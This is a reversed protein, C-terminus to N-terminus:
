IVLSLFLPFHRSLRIEDGSKLWCQTIQTGNVYTHNKSATDFLEARGDSHVVICCHRRSVYIDDVVLDNDNFRGIHNNGYKLRYNQIGIFIQYDSDFRCRKSAVPPGFSLNGLGDEGALSQLGITVSGKAKNVRNRVLRFQELRDLEDHLHISYFKNSMFCGRRIVLTNIM